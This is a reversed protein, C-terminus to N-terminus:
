SRKPWLSGLAKCIQLVMPAIILVSGVPILVWYPWPISPRRTM